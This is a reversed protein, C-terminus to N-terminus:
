AFCNFEEAKSEGLQDLFRYEKDIKSELKICQEPNNAEYVPMEINYWNIIGDEQAILIHKQTLITTLPVSDLDLVQEVKPEPLKKDPIDNRNGPGLLPNIQYLKKTNTCLHVRGFPDWKLSTM